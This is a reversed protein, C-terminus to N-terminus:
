GKKIESPHRNRRSTASRKPKTLVRPPEPRAPRPGVTRVYVVIGRPKETWNVSQVSHGAATLTEHVERKTAVRGFRGEVSELPSPKMAVPRSAEPNDPVYPPVMFVQVPLTERKTGM